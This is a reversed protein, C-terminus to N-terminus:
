RSIKGKMKENEAFVRLWEGVEFGMRRLATENVRGGAEGRLLVARAEHLKVDVLPGMGNGGKGGNGSAATPGGVDSARSGSGGDGSGAPSGLQGVARGGNGGGQAPFDSGHWVRVDVTVDPGIVGRWLTAMWQWHDTPSYEDAIPITSAAADTLTLQYKPVLAIPFPNKLPFDHFALGTNTAAKHPQLSNDPDLAASLPGSDPEPDVEAEAEAEIGETAIHEKPSANTKKSSKAQKTSSKITKPSVPSSTNSSIERQSAPISAENNGADTPVGTIYKRIERSQEHYERMLKMWESISECRIPAPKSFVKIKYDNDRGLYDRLYNLVTAIAEEDNGDIALLAGRTTQPPSAPGPTPLPPSIRSLLKIKNIAPISMVMAEVGSKAQATSLRADDLKLPPLAFSSSQTAQTSPQARQIPANQNRAGGDARVLTLRDVSQRPLPPPLSGNGLRPFAGIYPDEIRRRKLDPTVQVLSDPRGRSANRLALSGPSAGPYSRSGLSSPPAPSTVHQPPRGFTGIDAQQNHAASARPSVPTSPVGPTPLHHPTPM